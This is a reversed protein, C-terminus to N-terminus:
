IWASTTSSSWYNGYLDAYYMESVMRYGTVPLFVAGAAEIKSWNENSISPNTSSFTYTSTSWNDPLLVLGNVGQVQAMAYRLGSSTTRTKLLYTWEGSTLTRWKNAVDGGNSIANKVGWDYQTGAIDNAGDGYNGTQDIMYPDNNHGSTGWGFLDIWDSQTARAEGTVTNGPNNGIHEWQNEAFQWAQTSAQYQLNGQSFYVQKGDGVSFKGGLGGEPKYIQLYGNTNVIWDM